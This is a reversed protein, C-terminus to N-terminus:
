NCSVGGVAVAHAATQSTGDKFLATLAVTYCGPAPFTVPVGAVWSVTGSPTTWTQKLVEGQPASADYFVVTEGAEATAPGSIAAYPGTPTATPEPTLEETPTATPAPTPTNAPQPQGAPRSTPTATAPVATATPTAAPSAAASPSAIAGANVPGATRTGATAEEPTPTAQAAPTEDGPAPAAVLPSDDGDGGGNMFIAAGLLGIGAVVLVGGLTTMLRTTLPGGARAPAAPLYGILRAFGTVAAEFERPQEINAAHGAEPLHAVRVTGAPFRAAFGAANPAFDADRDGVVLLMPIELEGHREYANVDVVLSEATGALGAPQIRDFDRTLLDKSIPDLRRSHAPYLRTKKLFGTGEARVRAAMELMGARATERWEPSGAASSSNIVVLGAVREPVDLAFRLALAGGLSHGCLLVRDYDLHDFLNLLRRIAQEPAYAASAIPADSAGHGLLEVTVVTFHERLGDLNAEFSASSATFGHLLVLPPAGLPHPYVEYGIRQGPAGFLPM